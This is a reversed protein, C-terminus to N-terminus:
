GVATKSPDFNWGDPQIVRHDIRPKSRPGHYRGDLPWYYGELEDSGKGLIGGTRVYHETVRELGYRQIPCVKMCVACGHAQAVVPFCREPKIPAKIVGRKERRSKPIAGPPCRRVCVQCEDCIRPIGYDVATGLEMPADTTILALRVRSGAQPTLLQGNLGLQGLGAEVGYHIAVAELSSWENPRAEYGLSKVFDALGAVRRQIEAYGRYAGREARAGPARQTARWDQELVCVIVNSGARLDFGAFTYKPDAATFGVESLGLRDAEARILEALRKGTPPEVVAVVPHERTRELSRLARLLSPFCALLYSWSHAIAWLIAESHAKNFNPLPRDQFARQEREPIRETGPVGRLGAPVEIMVPKWVPPRRYGLLARPLPPVLRFLTLRGGGYMATAMKLTLPSTLHELRGNIRHRVLRAHVVRPRNAVHRRWFRVASM